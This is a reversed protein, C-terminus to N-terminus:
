LRIQATRSKLTNIIEPNTIETGTDVDIVMYEGLSYGASIERGDIDFYFSKTGRNVSAEIYKINKAPQEIGLGKAVEADIIMQGDAMEAVLADYDASFASVAKAQGNIFEITVYM